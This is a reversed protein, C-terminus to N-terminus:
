EPDESEAAAAAAEKQRARQHEQITSLVAEAKDPPLTAQAIAAILPVGVTDALDPMIQLWAPMENEPNQRAPGVGTARQGLAIGLQLLPLFEKFGGTDRKTGQGELMKGLLAFFRDDSSHGNQQGNGLQGRVQNMTATQVQLAIMRSMAALSERLGDDQSPASGRGQLLTLILQQEFSMGNPSVPAAMVSPVPGAAEPAPLEDITVHGSALYQGGVNHGTCHFRGPGWKKRLWKATVLDPPYEGELRAFRGQPESFRNVRVRAVTTDTGKARLAKMRAEDVMLIDGLPSPEDPDLPLEPPSFEPVQVVPPVPVPEPDPGPARETDSGRRKRAAM